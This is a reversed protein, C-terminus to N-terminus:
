QSPPSLLTNKCPCIHDDHICTTTCENLAIARRNYKSPECANRRLCAIDFDISISIVIAFFIAISIHFVLKM